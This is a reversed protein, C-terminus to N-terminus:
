MHLTRWESVAVYTTDEVCESVAVYTTDEVCESCCIYHGGCM